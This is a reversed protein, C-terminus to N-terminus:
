LVVTVTDSFMWASDLLISTLVSFLGLSGLSLLGVSVSVAGLAGEVVVLGPLGNCQGDVVGGDVAVGLLHLLGLLVGIGGEGSVDLLEDGSVGEGGVVDDGGGTGGVVLLEVGVLVDDLSMGVELEVLGVLFPVQRTWHKLISAVM